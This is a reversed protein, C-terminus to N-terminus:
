ALRIVQPCQNAVLRCVEGAAKALKIGDLSFDAMVPLSDADVHVLSSMSRSVDRLRREVEERATCLRVAWSTDPWQDTQVQGLDALAERAGPLRLMLPM